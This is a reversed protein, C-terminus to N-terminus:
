RFLRQGYRRSFREVRTPIESPVLVTISRGVERIILRRQRGGSRIRFSESLELFVVTFIWQAVSLTCLPYV